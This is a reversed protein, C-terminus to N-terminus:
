NLGYDLGNIDNTIINYDIGEVPEKGGKFNLVDYSAKADELFEPEDNMYENTEDPKQKKIEIEETYEKLLYENFNNRMPNKFFNLDMYFKLNNKNIAYSTKMNRVGEIMTRKSVSTIINLENFLNKLKSIYQTMAENHTKPISM